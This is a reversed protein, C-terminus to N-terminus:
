SHIILKMLILSITFHPAMWIHNSTRRNPYTNQKLTQTKQPTESLMQAAASHQMRIPQLSRRGKFLQNYLFVNIKAFIENVSAASRVKEM